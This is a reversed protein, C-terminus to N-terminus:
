AFGSSTSYALYLEELKIKSNPSLFTKILEVDVEANKLSQPDSQRYAYITLEIVLQKIIAPVKAFGWRGAIIVKQNEAFVNGDLRLIYKAYDGIIRYDDADLVAGDITISTLSIIPSIRLQNIGKGYFTKNTDSVSKAQGFFNEPVECYLDILDSMSKSIELLTASNVGQEGQMIEEIEITSIYSM